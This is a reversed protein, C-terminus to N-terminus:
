KIIQKAEKSDPYTELLLNTIRSADEENGLDKYISARNKLSRSKVNLGPFLKNTDISIKEIEEYSELANKLDGSHRQSQAKWYWATTYERKEEPYLAFSLIEFELTNNCFFKQIFIRLM